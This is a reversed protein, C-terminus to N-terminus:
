GPIERIHLDILRVSPFFFLISLLGYSFPINMFESKFLTCFILRDHNMIIFVPLQWFREMVLTSFLFIPNFSIVRISVKNTYISWNTILESLMAGLLGFLAGSAGVSINNRIFLSSVVSGGFGSLLYIIGIRVALMKVFTLGYGNWPLIQLVCFFIFM